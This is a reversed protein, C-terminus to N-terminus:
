SGRTRRALREGALRWQEELYPKFDWYRSRATTVFTTEVDPTRAYLCVGSDVVEHALAVPADNLSVLDISMGLETVLDARCRLLEDLSFPPESLVALDVDRPTRRDKQAASGFLYVLQVRPDQALLRAAREACGRADAAPTSRKGAVALAYCGASSVRRSPSAEPGDNVRPAAEGAVM